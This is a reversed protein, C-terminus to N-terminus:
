LLGSEKFSFYRNDGIIIHDLIPIGLLESSSKIRKTVTKDELSPAPDGSPHNHLVVFCAANVSLAEKLIERPDLISSDLTGISITKDCIMARKSDLFLALVRERDLTRMEEMYFDSIAKPCKAIFKEGQFNGKIRKTLECVAVLQSAKINGIGKIKKFDSLSLKYLGPLGYRKVSPHNLIDYSVDLVNQGKTGTRLIVALLDADTLNSVGNKLLKEYPLNDAIFYTNQMEKLFADYSKGM